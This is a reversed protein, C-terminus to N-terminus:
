RVGWAVDELMPYTLMGVSPVGFFQHTIGQKTLYDWILGEYYSEATMWSDPNEYQAFQIDFKVESKLYEDLLACVALRRGRPVAMWLRKAKEIWPMTMNMELKLLTEEVPVLEDHYPSYHNMSGCWCFEDPEPGVTFLPPKVGLPSYHLKGNADKTTVVTFDKILGLDIFKNLEEGAATMIAGTLNFSASKVTNHQVKTFMDSSLIPHNPDPKAYLHSGPDPVMFVSGNQAVYKM